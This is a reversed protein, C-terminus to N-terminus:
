PIIPKAANQLMTVTEAPWGSQQLWAAAEEPKQEHWQSYIGRLLRAQLQPSEVAAAATLKGSFRSQKRVARFQDAEPIGMAEVKEEFQSIGTSPAAFRSIVLPAHMAQPLAQLVEAVGSDNVTGSNDSVFSYSMVDRAYLPQAEAPLQLWWDLAGRNNKNSMRELVAGAAERRLTEDPIAHFAALPPVYAKGYFSSNSGFTENLFRRRGPGPPLSALLGATAQPDNKVRTLLMAQAFAKWGPSHLLAPNEAIRRPFWADLRSNEMGNELAKSLSNMVSVWPHYFSGEDSLAYIEDTWFDACTEPARRLWTAWLDDLMNKRERFHKRELMWRATDPLRGATIQEMLRAIRKQTALNDPQWHTEALQRLVEAFPLHAPKALPQAQGGADTGSAPSLRAALTANRSEADRAMTNLQWACVGAFVLGAALGAAASRTGFYSLVVPWKGSSIAPAAAKVCQAALSAPAATVSESKLTLGLLTASAVAGRRHLLARLRELAREARKQAAEASIGLRRGLAAMDEREFYKGVIVAQDAASLSALAEDLLPALKLWTEQPSSSENMAAYLQERNRRRSETRVSNTALRVAQRWCWPGPQVEAPLSRGKKALLMFVAQTVDEAMAQERTTRLAASHVLDTLSKVLRGFSAADGAARFARWDSDTQSIM